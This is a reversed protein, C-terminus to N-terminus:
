LSNVDGSYSITTHKSHKGCGCADPNMSSSYDKEDKLQKVQRKFDYSSSRLERVIAEQNFRNIDLIIARIKSADLLSLYKEVDSECNFKLLEIQDPFDDLFLKSIIKLKLKKGEYEKEMRPDDNFARKIRLNNEYDGILTRYEIAYKKWLILAENILENRALQKEELEEDSITNLRKKYPGIM